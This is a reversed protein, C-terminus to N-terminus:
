LAGAREAGQAWLIAEDFAAFVQEKTRFPHDNWHAIQDGVVAILFQAPPENFIAESSLPGNNLAGVMCFEGRSNRATNQCWGHKKIRTKAEKLVTSAAKM